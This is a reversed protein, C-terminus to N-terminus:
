IALDQQEGKEIYNSLNAWKNSWFFISELSEHGSLQYFLSMMTESQTKNWITKKRVVMSAELNRGDGEVTCQRLHVLFRNLSDNEAIVHLFLVDSVRWFKDNVDRLTMIVFIFALSLDNTKFCHIFPIGYINLGLWM